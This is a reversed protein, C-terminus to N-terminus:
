EEEDEFLFRLLKDQAIRLHNHFTPSAIGLSEAVEEATRDRPWEFYGSRYATKLATRQRDTLRDLLHERYQGDTEIERHRTRQAVLDIGPFEAELADVVARVDAGASVDALIRAEGDEVVMSTITAGYEALTATVTETTTSFEFLLEDDGDDVLTVDEATAADAAAERITEAEVGEVAVYALPTDDAALTVGELRLTAGTEASVATPFYGDDVLGFELEIREDTVLAQKREVAAIAHGITRGLEALVDRDREDFGNPETSYVSLVGYITKDYLLPVAAGSRFGRELAPDRWREFGEDTAMDRVVSVTGTDLVTGAPGEGCISGNNTKSIDALYGDGAGARSRPEITDDALNEQGIWAFAYPGDGTLRECVTEEIEARSSAEVLGQAVDRIVQTIRNLAVLEDRQRELERERRERETVDRVIAVFLREGEYVEEHVSLSIPVEHGDAHLASFAMDQWENGPPNDDVYRRFGDLHAQRYAPPIITTVPEGELEDPDRGFVDEVAGSAYCIRNEATVVLIADNARRVIMELLLEEHTGARERHAAVVHQIRRALTAAGEDVRVYDTPGGSTTGDDLSPVPEDGEVLVVGALSPREERAAALLDTGDGQPGAADVVLCDVSGDVRQLAEDASAATTLTATGEEFLDVAAAVLDAHRGAYLM